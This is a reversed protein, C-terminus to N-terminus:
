YWNGKFAARVCLVNNPTWILPRVSLPYRWGIGTAIQLTPIIQTRVWICNLEIVWWLLIKLWEGLETYSSGFVYFIYIRCDSVVVDGLWMERGGSYFWHRTNKCMYLAAYDKSVNLIRCVNWTYRYIFSFQLHLSYLTEEVEM